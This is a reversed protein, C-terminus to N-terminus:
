RPGADATRRRRAAGRALRCRAQASVALDPGETAIHVFDPRLNDIRASVERTTALALRLDPILPASVTKFDDPTVLSVEFGLNRLQTVLNDLTTVVGNVQPRWADTAILLRV